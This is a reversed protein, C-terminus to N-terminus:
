TADQVVINGNSLGRPEIEAPPPCEPRTAGAPQVANRIEDTSVGGVPPGNDTIRVIVYRGALNGNNRNRTIQGVVTAKNGSVRLCTIDADFREVPPGNETAHFEFKGSPNSGDANSKAEISFHNDATPHGNSGGGAVQDFPQGATATTATGTALIVTAASGAVVHALRM